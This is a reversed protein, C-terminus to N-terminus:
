RGQSSGNLQPKVYRDVLRQGVIISAQHESITGAAMRDLMALMTNIPTLDQKTAIKKFLEPYKEAETPFRTRLEEQLVGQRVLPVMDRIMKRIFAAREAPDYDIQRTEAQRTAEEVSQREIPVPPQNM